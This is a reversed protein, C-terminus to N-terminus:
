ATHREGLAFCTAVLQKLPKRLTQLSTTLLPPKALLPQAYSEKRQRKRSKHAGLFKPYMVQKPDCQQSLLNQRKQLVSFCARLYWQGMLRAPAWYLTPGCMMDEGGVFGAGRWKRM